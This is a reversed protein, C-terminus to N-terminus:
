RINILLYLFWVAHHQEDKAAELFAQKMAPSNASRALERYFDVTNQEDKVAFELGGKYTSPCAESIQSQPRRGTLNTYFQSFTQFHRIEDDRIEMIINRAEASPARRAIQEYCAIASYEGNIARILHALWVAQQNGVDPQTNRLGAHNDFPHVFM